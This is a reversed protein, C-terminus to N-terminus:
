APVKMESPFADLLDDANRKFQKTTAISSISSLLGTLDSQMAVRYAPEKPCDTTSYYDRFKFEDGLLKNSFKVWANPVDYADAIILGHLSSSVIFDCSLVKDVFSEPDLGVDIVTCDQSPVLSKDVFREMDSFHPVIGVRYAAGNISSRKKYYRPLLWAPDGLLVSDMPYGCNSLMDRTLVGRVARIKRPDLRFRPPSGDISGAGWIYSQWNASGLVSGIARLHIFASSKSRRTEVGTIRPILYPNLLDGVNRVKDFYVVPTRRDGKLFPVLESTFRSLVGIARM